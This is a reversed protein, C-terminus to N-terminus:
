FLKDQKEMKLKKQKRQFVMCQAILVLRKIKRLTIKIALVIKLANKTKEVGKSLGRMKNNASIEINIM